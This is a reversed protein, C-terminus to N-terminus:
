EGGCLASLLDSSMNLLWRKDSYSLTTEILETTYYKDCGSLIEDLAQQYAADIFEELYNGDSDYIRSAPLTQVM